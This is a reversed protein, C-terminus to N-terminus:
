SWNFRFRNSLALSLRISSERPPEPSRDLRRRRLDGVTPSRAGGTHREARVGLAGVRPGRWAKEIPVLRAGGALRIREVARLVAESLAVRRGSVGSVAAGAAAAGCRRLM